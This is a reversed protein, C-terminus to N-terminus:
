EHSIELKSRAQKARNELFEVFESDQTDEQDFFNDPIGSLPHPILNTEDWSFTKEQYHSNEILTQWEKLRQSGTYPDFLENEPKLLQVLYNSYSLYFEEINLIKTILPSQNETITETFVAFEFEESNPALSLHYDFPIYHAMGTKEEFYFYFEQPNLLYDENQSFLVNVALTKLFDDVEFHNTIWEHFVDGELTNLSEIFTILQPMAFSEFDRKNTKLDYIFLQTLQTNEIGIDQNNTTFYAQEACKWLYGDDTTPFYNRLFQRDVPEEMEYIGYYVPSEDSTIYVYLKAFSAHPHYSVELRELLDYAYVNVFDFSEGKLVNLNLAELDHFQIDNEYQNFDLKFSVPSLQLNKPDHQDGYSGEPRINAERLRLGIEPIYEEFGDKYWIFSAKVDTENLPNEDYNNLLKNWEDESVQILIEPVNDSDFVYDPGLNIMEIYSDLYEEDATYDKDPLIERETQCSIFLTLILALLSVYKM